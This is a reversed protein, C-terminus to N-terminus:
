NSRCVCIKARGDQMKTKLKQELVKSKKARGGQLNKSSRRANNKVKAQGDLAKKSPWRVFKQEVMKCKKKVKARGDLLKQEVM